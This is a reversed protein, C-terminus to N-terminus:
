LLLFSKLEWTKPRFTRRWTFKVSFVKEWSKWRVYVPLRFSNINQNRTSFFCHCPSRITTVTRKLIALRRRDIRITTHTKLWRRTSLYRKEVSCMLRFTKNKHLLLGKFITKLKIFFVLNIFSNYWAWRSLCSLLCFVKGNHDVENERVKPFLRLKIWFALLAIFVLGVVLGATAM